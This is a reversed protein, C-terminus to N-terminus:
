RYLSPFQKRHLELGYDRVEDMEEKTPNDGLALRRKQYERNREDFQPQTQQEVEVPMALNQPNVPPIPTTVPAELVPKNLPSYNAPVCALFLSLTGDSVCDNRM